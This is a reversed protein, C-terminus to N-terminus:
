STRLTFVALEESIEIVEEPSCPTVGKAIIGKLVRTRLFM